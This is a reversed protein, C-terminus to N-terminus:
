LLTLTYMGKNQILSFVSSNEITNSISDTFLLLAHIQLVHILLVLLTLLVSTVSEVVIVIVQRIVTSLIINRNCNCITISFTM